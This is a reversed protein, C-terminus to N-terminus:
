YNIKKSFIDLVLGYIPFQIVALLFIIVIDNLYFGFSVLPFAILSYNFNYPNVIGISYAAFLFLPTLISFLKTIPFSNQKIYNLLIKM